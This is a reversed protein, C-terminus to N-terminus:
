LLAAWNTAERWARIYIQVLTYKHTQIKTNLYIGEECAVISPEVVLSSLKHSGELHTHINKCTWIQTIVNKYKSTNGGRVGCHLAGYCPQKSRPKEGPTYIQVLTHKHIQIKIYLYIEVHIWMYVHLEVHSSYMWQIDTNKCKLRNGYTEVYTHAARYWLYVSCSHNTLM